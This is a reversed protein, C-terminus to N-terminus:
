RLRASQNHLGVTFVTCGEINSCRVGVMYWRMNNILLRNLHIALEHTVPVHVYTPTPTCPNNFSFKNNTTLTTFLQKFLCALLNGLFLTNHVSGVRNYAWESWNQRLIHVWRFPLKANLISSLNKRVKGLSVTPTTYFYADHWWKFGKFLWLWM